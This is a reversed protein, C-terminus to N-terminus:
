YVGGLGKHSQAKTLALVRQEPIAAALRYNPILAIILPLSCSSNYDLEKLHEVADQM